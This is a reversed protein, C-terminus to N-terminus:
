TDTFFKYNSNLLVLHVICYHLILCHLLELSDRRNFSCNVEAWVRESMKTSRILFCNWNGLLIWNKQLHICIFYILQSSGSTVFTAMFPKCNKFHVQGWFIIKAVIVRQVQEFLMVGKKIFDGGGGLRSKKYATFTVFVLWWRSCSRTLSPMSIRSKVDCVSKCRRLDKYVHMCLLKQHLILFLGMGRRVRVHSLHHKTQRLNAWLFTLFQM